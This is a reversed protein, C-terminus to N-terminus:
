NVLGEPRDDPTGAEVQRIISAYVEAAQRYVGSTRNLAFAQASALILAPHGQRAADEGVKLASASLTANREAMELAMALGDHVAQMMARRDDATTDLIVEVIFAVYEPITM